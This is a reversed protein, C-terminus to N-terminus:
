GRKPRTGGPLQAARLVPAVGAGDSRLLPLLMTWLLLAPAFVALAAGLAAHLVLALAADGHRRPWLLLPRLCM